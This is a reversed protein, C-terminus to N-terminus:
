PNNSSSSPKEIGGGGGGGGGPVYSPFLFHLGGASLSICKISKKKRRGEVSTNEWEEGGPRTKECSVTTQTQTITCARSNIRYMNRRPRAKQRKQMYIAARLIARGAHWADLLSSRYTIEAGCGCMPFTHCWNTERHSTLALAEVRPVTSQTGAWILSASDGHSSGRGGERRWERWTFTVCLRERKKRKKKIACAIVVGDSKVTIRNINFGTEAWSNFM